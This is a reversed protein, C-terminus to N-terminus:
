GKTKMTMGLERSWQLCNCNQKFLMKIHKHHTKFVGTLHVKSTREGVIGQWWEWGRHLSGQKKSWSCCEDKTGIIFNNYVVYNHYMSCYLIKIVGQFWLFIFSLNKWAPNSATHYTYANTQLFNVSITSVEM